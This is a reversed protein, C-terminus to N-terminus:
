DAQGDHKSGPESISYVRVAVRPRVSVRKQARLDVVAIDNGLWGDLADLVAKAYNDVDGVARHHPEDMSWLWRPMYRPRQKPRPLYVVLDVRVLDGPREADVPVCSAVLAEYRRTTSPTYIRAHRGVIRARPRAKPVPKGPVEFAAVLRWAISDEAM